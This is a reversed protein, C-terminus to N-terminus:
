EIGARTFSGFFACTAFVCFVCMLSLSLLEFLWRRNPSMQDLIIEVRVVGGHKFTQGLILFASAACLWSIIDDGGRLNIGIERCISMSLMVVCVLAICTAGLGASWHIVRDLWRLNSEKKNDGFVSLIKIEQLKSMWMVSM